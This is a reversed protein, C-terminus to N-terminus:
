LEFTTDPKFLYGEWDPSDSNDDEYALMEKIVKYYGELEKPKTDIFVEWDLREKLRVPIPLNKTLNRVNGPPLRDLVSMRTMDFLSLPSSENEAIYDLLKAAPESFTKLETAHETHLWEHLEHSATRCGILHLVYALVPHNGKLAEVTPSFRAPRRRRSTTTAVPPIQKNVEHYRNFLM